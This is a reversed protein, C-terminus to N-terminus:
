AISSPRVSAAYTVFPSISEPNAMADLTVVRNPKEGSLIRKIPVELKKGTITRPIDPVQVISDPVHRPSVHARLADNIADKMAGTLVAGEDLAVFLLIRSPAGEKEIDVVLSDRISPVAEIVRYFDATGM